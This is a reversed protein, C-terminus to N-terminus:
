FMSSRHNFSRVFYDLAAMNGDVSALAGNINVKVNVQNTIGANSNIYNVGGIVVTGAILTGTATNSGGQSLRSALYAKIAKQTPIIGDSNAVFTSDTSFQSIVVSSGGVAIGGLSLSSTIGLLGFQTASLTVIGTSQQVGFLNGVKFNGDQDTSTFFVRGYNVEVTQNNAVAVYGAEPYNPYNSTIINGYGVNLFDHNTLRIQSYKTRISVATANAPSNTTTISPSLQVIAEIAPAVTGYIPTAVTVKYVQSDGAITLDSGVVPLSTMNNMIISYGTQYSDSYGNGNISVFTSTTTYGSGRNIFTTNGLVGNAIRPTVVALATVNPDTLTLTPTSTYNSGPEWLSTSTLAASTISPRGKARVGAGIYSGTSAGALTVFVGVNSANYGFATASYASSTVTKLRWNLGDESLYASASGSTLALFAGQGYILQTAAISLNSTYWTIADFSYASPGSASTVAVFRGNGYKVATYTSATPLTTSTWTIGDASYAGTGTATTALYTGNGFTLSVWTGSFTASQMLTSANTGNFHMLLKTNADPVFESTTPTFTTTYRGTGKTIRLEDVYGNLMGGSHSYYSGVSVPRAAYTNSDSYTTTQLTGGVFMRTTGSVKSIAIHTWTNLSVVTNSTIAYAGNVYFRINGSVNADITVSAESAATRQDLLAPAAAFTTAYIFFEVTFDGTGYGYDANSAATIYSSGDLYLSTVGFKKQTTSLQANVSATVVKDSPLLATTWTKGFDASYASLASSTDIAVFLGNGYVIKKWATNYPLTSQRWAVGNSNSFIATASGSSLAVFYNNGYAVTSYTGGVVPVTRQTWSNGDQTTAVISGSSANQVAVFYNNGYAIDIWSGSGASVVTNSATQSFTPDTYTVRPEIYYVSTYDLTSQIPTGPNIHDWGVAGLNMSGTATSLTIPTGIPLSSSVTMTNAGTNITNVYYTTGAVVGGFLATSFTANMTGVGVNVTSRATTSTATATGSSGNSLAFIQTSLATRATMTGTETRLAVASGGPTQSITFSTGNNIALIFYTTEVVIGGLTTGSFKIPNNVVFNTTDSVTILGTAATTATCTVTTLASALIITTTSPIRAIYYKTGAVIGGITTGSFVIPNLSVLQTSSAVTAVNTGTVTDTLTTSVASSAITFTTSNIVDNIYYITGVSLGGLSTGTFQIALNPLMNTTSGCTIYSNYAPYNMTLNGSATTLQWVTSFPLNTIKITTGDIIAAIYFQYGTTIQGFTTGTFSVPMNQTLGVTTTVTITNSSGGVSATAQMQALSTATVTITTYKPIFQVPQGAYLGSMDTSGAVTLVGGSATTNTITIADFSEKLVQVVKTSTNYSSIYGYQGAGTGSQIFLRMGLYNSITNTDSTSITISGTDGTTPYNSATLYGAGGLGTGPDTVRSQFIARSRLEDGTPKAGTGAGSVQFYAFQSYRDSGTNEQYYSPVLGSSPTIELQSGYIFTYNTSGNISSPYFRYQLNNNLGTSDQVNFWLRYWGTTNATTVLQAGYQTPVFGSTSYASPTVIGTAFNYSIGSTVSSSGSFIAQLDVSQASGQKVHLSVTYQQTSGAPVTGTFSFSNVASGTLSGITIIIDNTGTVGGVSAGSLTITNSLVYGSGGSSGKTVLYGTPTITVNFVALSGGGSTSAQPVDTYTIGSPNIANNMYFYGAGASANTSTLTWAETQGTPAVSVKAYTLNGDDSWLSNFINSNSLFNTTPQVYNSGANSFNFKLIQATTGFAQQVTAQTELSQNFINGTIPTETTDYGTAVCGYTGYSSNGNTARIRGGAEAFYGAYCYYTFVSVAETLSSPGTCWIGVGDSLVQTFDNSVISKNGGNHLTGDIKLGICGTGFTTVNQIYPSRKFIWASTDDPGTGPDLSVYAGGTPRALLNADVASLTGLLGTLTVNRLGSANRMYLMNSLANGGYVPMTGVIYSSTLSLITPPTGAWTIPGTQGSVGVDGITIVLDNAPSLGGLSTGPITVLDFKTYNADAGGSANTVTYSISGKNYTVTFKAGTAAPNAVTTNTASISTYTGGGAYVGFSTPTITSGNVYYTTGATVGGLTYVVGASNTNSVFQVPTQDVMGVTSGVIFTNNVTNISSVTQNIINNPQVVVGRLEDGVLAVNEPVTIPLTESYTGTKIFITASLGNNPSPLQNTSQNTLATIIYNFLSNSLAQVSLDPQYNSAKIQTVPSLVGNLTQYSPSNDINLIITSVLSKLQSLAAIFFPMEAAVAANFFTNTSGDAFYSKTTAVTQSNGGRALDYGIADVVYRADRKTKTADFTSSPTFPTTSNAKQYLMWQYMESILYEKNTQLLASVTPYLTGAGVYDCAYKITKWPQDWTKGYDTRDTGNSASVYYVSPVQNVYSWTPLKNTSRLVYTDTGIPVATYGPGTNYTEIDGFAGSANKRYHALYNVWSNHSSDNAPNTGSNYNICYYTMNKYVVVDGIQYSINTSWLGKFAVGAIIVNWYQTNLGNFTLFQGDTLTGDPARDLTITNTAGTDQVSSVTQGLTIGTGSVIMGPLYGQASKPVVIVNGSSGSAQYTTQQAFGSPGSNTNDAIAVYSRGGVTVVDGVKYNGSTYEGKLEYGTSLLTWNANSSFPTNNTNNSTISIYVYGGYLVVDGAQYATASSWTNSFEIGPIWVIFKTVDFTSTSTHAISVLWLEAGEKVIDNLKYQTSSAWVGKYETGRYLINWNAIDNELGLTPTGASTHNTNCRYVIGGYKVVDGVAYVTSVTWANSWNYTQSYTTWKSLDLTTGSSTHQTTCIYNSGGFHVINGVDYFTNTLWNGIFTKGDVTLSWYPTSAGAGTTHYLDGYFDGSTHPILCIYTKGGHQIVYDRNYFTGTAWPGGWTVRLRGIKFEAM